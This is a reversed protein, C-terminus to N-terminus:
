YEPQDGQRSRVTVPDGTKLGLARAASDERLSIELFGFSGVLALPEGRAVEAYTRSLGRLRVAGAEVLLLGQLPELDSRHVSTVCNGFRDVHLVTGRLLRGAPGVHQVFAEPLLQPRLAAGRISGAQGAACLAAAPAFLDRGHFTHSLRVGEPPPHLSLVAATDLTYVELRPHMRALLSPLGNDPAILYRGGQEALLTGRSSGVGPDVVACFASGAPFYDWAACLLYAGSLISHPDIDHGLDVVPLGPHRSLIVGKMVGVYADRTGFDTLLVVAAV